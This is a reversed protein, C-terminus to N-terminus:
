RIVFRQTHSKNNSTFKLLYLGSALPPLTYRYVENAQLAVRNGLQQGVTSIIEIIGYRDAKIHLVDGKVVPNPYIHIIPKEPLSSGEDHKLIHIGGLVNGFVVAPKNTNFLNAVAPWIRGGLNKSVYTSLGANFVIARVADSEASDANRFDSLIGPRGTQDAIVLDAKGDTDLDAVAVTLDQRMPSTTLGLFSEDELVFSPAEAVGNNRWYELNGESRGALLDPLGDANIDTFYVNETSTLHFDLQQLTATNFELSTQSHNNLFYIRTTNTDFNTATFVLDKTQDSNIDIIQIKLNFYRATSFGLYDDTALRFAPASMSGINEYLFLRSTFEESSHSSILLDFDGDGDYDAFAPVSNDGVDVMDSQLFDPKVFSFSPSATSGTNKYLWTSKNLDSNLFEKSFINPTAILDKKGDFDVDEYYPTPFVVFNAPTNEPFASFSNIIPNVSSGSNTLAFLRDCEAESLLLDQAQDGNLDIALLSKGGAHQTRGGPNPPCEENNLAFEGCYCERFNGWARTIRTYELSDCPLNKEVSLNQHFEVTHGTYQINMIDLDGDGDIDSISPLDDFQLQLNVKVKTAPNETLLVPSRAGDFGTNFLHHEWELAGATVTVNTYVKIGLVDGTFIDKRGDCNYDRLLLWNYVGSPFLEEYQPAAVYENEVTLFTIIKGAMRDYLVLDDSGDENLDMTNFQAANLGGAFALPLNDGQANEVPISQELTYTFQARVSLPLALIILTIARVM